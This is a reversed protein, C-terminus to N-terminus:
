KFYNNKICEPTVLKSDGNIDVVVKSNDKNDNSDEKKDEDKENDKFIDVVEESNSENNKYIVFIVGGLVLSIGLLILILKKM